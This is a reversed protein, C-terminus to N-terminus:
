PRVVSLNQSGGYSGPEVKKYGKTTV